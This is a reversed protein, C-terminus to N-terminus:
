KLADMASHGKRIYVKAMDPMDQEWMDGGRKYNYFATSLNTCVATYDIKPDCAKRFEYRAEVVLDSYRGPTVGMEAAARLRKLANIAADYNAADTNGCGTMTM